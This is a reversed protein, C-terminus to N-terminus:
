RWYPQPPHGRYIFSACLFAGFNPALSDLDWGEFYRFRNMETLPLRHIRAYGLCLTPQSGPSDRHDVLVWPPLGEPQDRRRVGSVVSQDRHLCLPKAFLGATGLGTPNRCDHNSLSPAQREAQPHLAAKLVNLCFRFRCSPESAAPVPKVATSLAM